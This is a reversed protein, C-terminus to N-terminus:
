AGVITIRSSDSILIEDDAVVIDANSYAPADGPNPTDDTEVLATAVGPVTNIPTGASFRLFDTGPHLAGDGNPSAYYAAVADRITTGPDGTTPYGEGQTITIRLHLYRETPRTLGISIDIGVGGGDPVLETTSGHAEIGAAGKDYIEAAVAADTGGLVIAEFSHPPLGNADIIDDRNERVKVDTVDLVNTLLGSRIARASASGTANLTDLHRARFEEDNERDRGETADATTTVGVIGSVATEITRLLTASAALAGTEEATMAVRVADHATLTGAGAPISVALTFTTVGDDADLVIVGDGTVPDTGGSLATVPEAGGNIASILGDRIEIKTQGVSAEDFNTGNITVRYTGDTTTEVTVVNVLDGGTTGDADSAFRVETDDVSAVSATPVLTADSGYWVGSVTSAVADLRTKGVLDLVWDLAVGTATRFFSSAWIAGNGQWLLDILIAITDILLGDPSDPATQANEGYQAKWLVVVRERADVLRPTNLGETTLSFDFAM